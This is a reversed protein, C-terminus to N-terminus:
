MSIELVFAIFWKQTMFLVFKKVPSPLMQAKISIYNYLIAYKQLFNM